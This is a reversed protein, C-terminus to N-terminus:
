EQAQPLGVRNRYYKQVKRPTRNSQLLGDCIRQVLASDFPAQVEAYGLAVLEDYDATKRVHAYDYAVVSEHRISPHDGARLTVTQDKEISISTVNVFVTESNSDPPLLAVHVHPIESTNVPTKLAAGSEWKM